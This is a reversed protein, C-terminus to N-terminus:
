SLFSLSLFRGCWVIGAGLSFFSAGGTAASAFSLFFGVPFPFFSSGSMAILFSSSDSSSWRMLSSTARRTSRAWSLSWPTAAAASRESPSMSRVAVPVTADIGFGSLYTRGKKASRRLCASDSGVDAGCRPARYSTSAKMPMVMSSGSSSCTTMSRLSLPELSSTPLHPWSNRLCRAPPMAALHCGRLSAPSGTSSRAASTCWHTVYKRCCASSADATSRAISIPSVCRM